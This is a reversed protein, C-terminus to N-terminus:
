RRRPAPSRASRQDDRDRQRDRRDRRADIRARRSRRHRCLAGFLGTDSYPMHFAHITYCLGRKERVEQFLRSSMGGGLVNTFVQLSYLNDDRCRCAKSRSRSICRSWTARSSRTGGGFRAPAPLPAAPGNFSAFRQEVEAVVQKTTSRAPRPWWWTPPAIIARLITACASPRSRACPKRRASSRAASRSNRFRPRRCATSCWITPRTRPPASRRCSSTRSAGCNTRISPRSPCFTPCFTSRWRCTPRSCAPTIPPRDRRQDRCQSRRRRGRDGRRDAACQPAQHGQLGYTRAPAFHRARGVSEDRSGSGVWVGLSATELHPMRDTVVSLGSPLRTVQVSM